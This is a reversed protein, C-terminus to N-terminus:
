LTRDKDSFLKGLNYIICIAAVLLFEVIETKQILELM